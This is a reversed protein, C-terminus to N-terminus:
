IIFTKIVKACLWYNIFGIHETVTLNFLFRNQLTKKTELLHASLVTVLNKQNQEM